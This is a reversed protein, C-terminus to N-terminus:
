RTVFNPTLGWPTSDEEHVSGVLKGRRIEIAYDGRRGVLELGLDDRPPAIEVLVGLEAVAFHAGRFHDGVVQAAEAEVLHAFLDRMGAHDPRELAALGARDDRQAGVHVRKGHDLFDVNGELAHDAGLPVALGAADHVSAAVVRM